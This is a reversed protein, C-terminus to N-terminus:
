KIINANTNIAFTDYNKGKISFNSLDKNLKCTDCKIM